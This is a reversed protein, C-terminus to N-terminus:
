LYTIILFNKIKTNKKYLVTTKVNSSNRQNEKFRSTALLLCPGALNVSQSSQRSVACM